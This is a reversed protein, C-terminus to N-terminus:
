KSLEHCVNPMGWPNFQFNTGVVIPQNSVVRVTFSVDTVGDFGPGAAVPMQWALERTHAAALPVTVGNAEGPYTQVPGATGPINHGM